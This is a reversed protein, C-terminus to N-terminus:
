SAPSARHKTGNLDSWIPLTRPRRSFSREGLAEFKWLRRRKQRLSSTSTASTATLLNKSEKRSCPPLRRRLDAERKRAEKAQRERRSRTAFSSASKRRRKGSSGSWSGAASRPSNLSPSASRGLRRLNSNPGSGVPPDGKRDSPNVKIGLSSTLPAARASFRGCAPQPPPPGM